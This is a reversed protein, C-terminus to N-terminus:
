FARTMARAREIWKEVEPVLRQGRGEAIRPAALALVRSFHELAENPNGVEVLAQGLVFHAMTLRMPDQLAECISLLERGVDVASSYAGRAGLLPVLRALTDEASVSRIDSGRFLDAARSLQQIAEDTRGMAALTGGISRLGEAVRPHKEGHSAVDIALAREQLALVEPLVEQSTSGLSRVIALWGLADALCDHEGSAEAQRVVEAFVAEAEAHRRAWRLSVGEELLRKVEEGAM